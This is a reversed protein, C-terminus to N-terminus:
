RLTRLLHGHPAQFERALFRPPPPPASVCLLYKYTYGLLLICEFWLIMLFPPHASVRSVIHYDHVDVIYYIYIHSLLLYGCGLVSRHVFNSTGDIPDVM